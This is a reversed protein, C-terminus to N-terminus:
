KWGEMGLLLFALLVTVVEGIGAGLILAIACGIVSIVASAATFFGNTARQSKDYLCLVLALGFLLWLLPTSLIISEGMINPKREM